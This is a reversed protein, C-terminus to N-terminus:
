KYSVLNISVPLSNQPLVQFFCLSWRNLQQLGLSKYCHSEAKGGFAKPLGGAPGKHGSQACLSIQYWLSSELLLTSNCIDEAFRETQASCCIHVQRPCWQLPRPLIRCHATGQAMHWSWINGPDTQQYEPTLSSESHLLTASGTDLFVRLTRWRVWKM